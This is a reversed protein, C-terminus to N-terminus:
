QIGDTCLLLHMCIARRVESEDHKYHPGFQNLLKYAKCRDSYATDINCLDFHIAIVSHHLISSNKITGIGRLMSLKRTMSGTGVHTSVEM